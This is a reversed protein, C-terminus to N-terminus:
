GGTEKTALRRQRLAVIRQESSQEMVQRCRVLNPNDAQGKLPQSPHWLHVIPEYGWTWTPRTLCRDWFENDEGGWGVFGEDMGGIEAYAAATIAMSGGAELNQVIAEAPQSDFSAQGALLMESHQRSLYFIFRKPNVVDYGRAIRDLLRRGYGTPVLMDNDHLLLVRGLAHQAGVNFTHSRNYPADTAKLPAHVHRVWSPLASGIRCTSDQEIVLCELQVEVQAALSELTALLLPLRETGRHGILVSLEPTGRLPEPCNRRLIPADALCRRLLRQGLRPQVGPAHLRSTFQWQCAYGSGDPASALHENRNALGLYAKSRSRLRREYRLRDKLWVGLHERLSDPM